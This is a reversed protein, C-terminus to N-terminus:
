QCISLVVIFYYKIIHIQYPIGITYWHSVLCYECRETTERELELTLNDLERQQESQLSELKTRVIDTHQEISIHDEAIERLRTGVQLRLREETEKAKDHSRCTHKTFLFFLRDFFDDIYSTYFINGILYFLLNIRSM